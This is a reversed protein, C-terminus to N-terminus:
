DHFEKLNFLTSALFNCLVINDHGAEARMDIKGPEPELNSSIRYGQGFTLSTGRPYYTFVDKASSLLAPQGNITTIYSNRWQFSIAYCINDLLIRM